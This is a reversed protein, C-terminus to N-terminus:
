GLKTTSAMPTAMTTTFIQTIGAKALTNLPKLASSGSMVRTSIPKESKM